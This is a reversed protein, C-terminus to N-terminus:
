HKCGDTFQDTILMIKWFDVGRAVLYNGMASNIYNTMEPFERGQRM